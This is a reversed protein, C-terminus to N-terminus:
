GEPRTMADTVRVTGAATEFTTELVNTREVYRRESAFPIAPSLHFSGGRAPDLIAGFVSDDELEPLCLWDISGDDGVLALTRGDGVAAYAEIPAYGDVRRRTTPETLTM